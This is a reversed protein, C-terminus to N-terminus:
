CLNVTMGRSARCHFGHVTHGPIPIFYSAHYPAHCRPEHVYRAPWSSTRSMMGSRRGGSPGSSFSLRKRLGLTGWLEPNIVGNSSKYVFLPPFSSGILLYLFVLPSSLIPKVFSVWSRPLSLPSLEPLLFLPCRTPRWHMRLLFTVPCRM